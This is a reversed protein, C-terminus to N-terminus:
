GVITREEPLEYRRARERLALASALTLPGLRGVFMLAILLLHGARDLEATIGTSLGVSGFASTVEFLARDFPQNTMELMALTGAVVIGVSMLAIALAQRQNAEPVRRRGVHVRSEGRVEAWIVFALLGFTTVKIGGGTGASGAGIFMLLNTTFLSEPSLAGVDISNMGASRPQVAAFFGSLLKTHVPLPGMTDPNTYEAVTIAVTGVVLLAATASVTILTLVSWHGPRRWTRALEFIVPFGLGGLIIALCLSINVWPDGVYRVMSDPYLSLGCNNFASVAHFLSEYAASHWPVDHALRLRLTLVAMVVAETALSFAVITIMVRRIDRLQISHTEAQVVLRARLGLRRSLLVALLTAMTMIGLGGLQMLVIIVVQGTTSWYTGTDVTALGAVCVSATSTFLADIVPARRGSSTSVPLMLLLAGLAVALAFAATIAQAPHQLVQGPAFRRRRGTPVDAIM